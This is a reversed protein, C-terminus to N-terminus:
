NLTTAPPMITVYKNLVDYLASLKGFQFSRADNPLSKNEAIKKTEKIEKNIWDTFEEPTM